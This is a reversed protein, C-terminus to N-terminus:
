REASLKRNMGDVGEDAVAEGLFLDRGGGRGAAGGEEATHGEIEV